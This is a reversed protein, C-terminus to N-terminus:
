PVANLRNELSDVRKSVVLLIVDSSEDLKLESHAESVTKM